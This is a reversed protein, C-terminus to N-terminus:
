SKLYLVYHQALYPLRHADDEPMATLFSPAAVALPKNCLQPSHSTSFKSSLFMVLVSERGPVTLPWLLSPSLDTDQETVM